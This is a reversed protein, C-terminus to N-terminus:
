SHKGAPLASFLTSDESEVNLLCGHAPVIRSFPYLLRRAPQDSSLHGRHFRKLRQIM